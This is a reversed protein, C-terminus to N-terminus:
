QVSPPALPWAQMLRVRVNPPEYTFQWRSRWWKTGLGQEDSDPLERVIKRSFHMVSDDFVSDGSKEVVRVDALVGRADQTLELVTRLRVASVRDVYTQTQAMMQMASERFRQDDASSGTGVNRNISQGLPSDAVKNASDMSVGPALISALERVKDGTSTESRQVKEKEVRERMSKEVRKFFPPVNGAGAAAKAIDQSIDDNLTRSLKEGEYERLAVEDPRETPDNRITQGHEPEADSAGPLRMVVGISPAWKKIDGKTSPNQPAYPSDSPLAAQLTPADSVQSAPPTPAEATEVKKQPATTKQVPVTVPKPPAVTPAAEEPKVADVWRIDVQAVPAPSRPPPTKLQVMYAVLCAHLAVSVVIALSGRSHRKAQVVDDICAGKSPACGTSGLTKTPKASRSYNVKVWAGAM